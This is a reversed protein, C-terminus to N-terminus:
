DNSQVSFGSGDCEYCKKGDGRGPRRDFLKGHGKCTQCTVPLPDSRSM